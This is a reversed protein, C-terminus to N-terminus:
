VKLGTRERFIDLLRLQRETPPGNIRSVAVLIDDIDFFDERGMGPTNRLVKSMNSMPGSPVEVDKLIWDVYDMLEKIEADELEFLSGLRTEMVAREAPSAPQHKRTFCMLRVLIAAAERPDEVGRLGAMGARRKFGLKRPLNALGEAANGIQEAAEGMQRAQGSFRSIFFIIASVATIIGIIIHM